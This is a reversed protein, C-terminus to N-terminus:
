REFSSQGLSRALFDSIEKAFDARYNLNRLAFEIGERHGIGAAMAIVRKGCQGPCGFFQSQISFAGECGGRVRESISDDGPAFPVYGQVSQQM